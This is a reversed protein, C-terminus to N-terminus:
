PLAQAALAAFPAAKVRWIITTPASLQLVPELQSRHAALAPKLNRATLDGHYRNVFGDQVIFVPGYRALELTNQWLQDPDAKWLPDWTCPRRTIWYMNYPKRCVVVANPPASRNLWDAAAAYNAIDTGEVLYRSPAYYPRGRNELNIATQQAGALLTFFTAAALVAVIATQGLRVGDLRSLRQALWMLSMALFWGWMPLLPLLYRGRPFPTLVLMLINMVMYWHMVGGRGRWTVVLGLLALVGLLSRAMFRAMRMGSPPAPSDPADASPESPHGLEDPSYVVPRPRLSLSPPRAVIDEGLNLTQAAATACTRRVLDGLGTLKREGESTEVTNAYRGYTAGRAAGRHQMVALPALLVTGILLSLLLGRWQRHLLLYIGLAPVLTVGNPRFYVAAVSAVIAVSLWLYRRPEDAPSWGAERVRMTRIDRHGIYRATALLALLTVATYQSESGTVVGVALMQMNWLFLWVGAVTALITSGVQMRLVPWALWGSLLMMALTMAKLLWLREGFVMMLLAYFAPAGPPRQTEPTVVPGSIVSYDHRTALSRALVLYEANDGGMSLSPQFALMGALLGPLVILLRLRQERRSMRWAYAQPQQLKEAHAVAMQEVM